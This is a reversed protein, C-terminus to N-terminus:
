VELTIDKKRIRQLKETYTMNMDIPSVSIYGKAVATTDYRIDHARDKPNDLPYSFQGADLDVVAPPWYDYTDQLM